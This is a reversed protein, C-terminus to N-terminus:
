LASMSHNEDLWSLLHHWNYLFTMKGEKKLVYDVKEVHHFIDKTAELDNKSYTEIGNIEDVLLGISHHKIQCLIIRDSLSIEKEPYKLSRRMSMVPIVKGQVNIVGLIEDSVNPIPTIEIAWIIRQVIEIEIGFDQDQISFLLIDHNKLNM